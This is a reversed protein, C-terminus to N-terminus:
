NHHHEHQHHNNFYQPAGFQGLRRSCNQVLHKKERGLRSDEPPCVNGYEQTRAYSRPFCDNQHTCEYSTFKENKSLTFTFIIISLLIIIPIIFKLNSIM